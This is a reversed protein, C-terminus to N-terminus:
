DAVTRERFIDDFMRDAGWAQASAFALRRKDDSSLKVSGSKYGLDHNAESWAHQFLTKVQLEFFAPLLSQDLDKPIVDQPIILVYHKGFYGFEWESDPVHAKLEIPRYYKEIIGSIRTVDSPYFVIVRAGIQDQIQLLPESYKPVGNAQSNAKELFREISKARAAIRDVRAEGRLYDRLQTEITASIPTLALNRRRSYEEALRSM